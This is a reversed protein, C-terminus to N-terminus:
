SGLDPAGGPAIRDLADRLVAQYEARDFTLPGFSPVGDRRVDEEGDTQYGWDSWTVTDPGVTLAITVAGCGLDGCEPCVYVSVRGGPADGPDQGLLRRVTAAAVAPSDLWLSTVYEIGARRIAPYLAEGDVEFDLFVRQARRGRTDADISRASVVCSLRHPEPVLGM